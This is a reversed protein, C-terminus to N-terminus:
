QCAGPGSRPPSRQANIEPGRPLGALAEELVQQEALEDAELVQHFVQWDNKLDFGYLRLFLQRTQEDKREIRPQVEELPLGARLAARHARVPLSVRLALKHGRASLWPLSWSDIVVQGREVEELLIRNAVVDLPVDDGLRQELRASGEPSEWYGQNCRSHEIDAPRGDMLDRLLGSAHIVRLGLKEGLGRALTSKGAGALGFVLM